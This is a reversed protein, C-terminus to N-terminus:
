ADGSSGVPTSGRGSSKAVPGSDRWWSNLLFHWFGAFMPNRMTARMRSLERLFRVPTDLRWHDTMIKAYGAGAGFCYYDIRAEAEKATRGHDHSVTPGPFYGGSFGAYSARVAIEWDEGAYLVGSGFRPDFGGGRELCARTFAMNSGQMFGPLLFRGAEIVREQPNDRFFGPVRNHSGHPLVRGTGYGLGPRQFVDLWQRALDPAPYCDDDIFILLEGRSATIGANRGAGNGPAPETVLRASHRSTEAFARMSAISGADDSGNDVIIVEFSPVPEMAEIAQLCNQLWHGGNRTCVILSASIPGQRVASEPAKRPKIDPM